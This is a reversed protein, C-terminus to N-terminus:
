WVRCTHDCVVGGRTENELLQSSSNRRTENELLVRVGALKICREHMYERIVCGLTGFLVTHVSLVWRAQAYM